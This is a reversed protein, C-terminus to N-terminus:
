ACIIRPTQIITTRLRHCLATTCALSPIRLVRVIVSVSINVKGIIARDTFRLVVTPLHLHLSYDKLYTREIKLPVREIYICYLILRPAICSIWLHTPLMARYWLTGWWWRTLWYYVIIKVNEQRNKMLVENIFKLYLLPVIQEKSSFRCREVYYSNKWWIRYNQTFRIVLCPSFM